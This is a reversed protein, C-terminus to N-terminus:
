ADADNWEVMLLELDTMEAEFTLAMLLQFVRVVEQAQQLTAGPNVDPHVALMKRRYVREYARRSGDLPYGHDRCLAAIEVIRGLDDHAWGYYEFYRQACKLVCKDEADSKSRAYIFSSLAARSPTCRDTFGLKRRCDRAFWWSGFWTMAYYVPVTVFIAIGCTAVTGLAAGTGWLVAATAGKTLVFDLAVGGVGIVAGRAVDYRDTPKGFENAAGTLWSYTPDILARAAAVLAKNKTVIGAAEIAFGVATKILNQREASTEATAADWLANIKTVLRLAVIAPWRRVSDKVVKFALASVTALSDFFAQRAYKLCVELTIKESQHALDLLAKVANRVIVSPDVSSGLITSM